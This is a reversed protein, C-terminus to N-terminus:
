VATTPNNEKTAYMVQVRLTARAVPQDGDGSFEADMSLVKTDKAYGGRTTDTALAVEIESCITDIQNDYASNGRVYAEVNVNLTRFIMRPPGMVAYEDSEDATYIALGPLNDDTLPYVRSVYVRSGTTTLGTLTTKINDRISQRVHPM